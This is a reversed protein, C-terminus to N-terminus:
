QRHVPYLINRIENEISKNVKLLFPQDWHLIGHEMASPNATTVLEAVAVVAAAAVAVCLESM